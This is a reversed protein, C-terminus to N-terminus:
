PRLVRSRRLFWFSLLYGPGLEQLDAWGVTGTKVPGWQVRKKSPEERLCPTTRPYQEESWMPVLELIHYM